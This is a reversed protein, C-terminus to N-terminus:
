IIQKLGFWIQPPVGPIDLGSFGPEWYRRGFFGPINELRVFIKTMYGVTRFSTEVSTGVTFYSPIIYATSYRGTFIRVANPPSRRQGIYRGIIGVSFSDMGLFKPFILSLYSMVIHKPFFSEVEIKEGGEEVTMFGSSFSYSVGFDLTKGLLLSLKADLGSSRSNFNDSKIFDGSQLFVIADLVRIRWLSIEPKLVLDIRGEIKINGGLILEQIRAKEPKLKPNGKFDGSFEPEVYLQEPSPARFSTGFIGKIYTLITKSKAPLLVLGVRTNFVDEYINHIDYRGGLLFGMGFLSFEGMEYLKDFPFLYVQSYVGINRFVVEDREPVKSPQAEGEKGIKYTKRISQNDNMIDFGALFLNKGRRVSVELRGDTSLSGLEVIFEGENGRRDPNFFLFKDTMPSSFFVGGYISPTIEWKNIKINTSLKASAGANMLSIINRPSLQGFEGFQSSSSFGQFFGSLKLETAKIRVGTTSFISLTRRTDNQNTKGFYNKRMENRKSINTVINSESFGISNPSFMLGDRKEDSVQIGIALPIEINSVEFVGASSVEGQLGFNTKGEGLLLGPSVRVYLPDMEDPEKTRINIVGMFANAGYLASAPGKVVEISKIMSTPMFERGLLAEGSPRFVVYDESNVMVKFIRSGARPGGHIGRVGFNYITFDYIGWMGPTYFLADGVSFFNFLEMKSYPILVYSSPAEEPRQKAKVVSEVFEEEFSLEEIEEQAYVHTNKIFVTSLIFLLGAIKTLKGSILFSSIKKNNGSM